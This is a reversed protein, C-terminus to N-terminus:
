RWTHIAYALLIPDAEAAAGRSLRMGRCIKEGVASRVLARTGDTSGLSLACLAWEVELWYPAEDRSWWPRM